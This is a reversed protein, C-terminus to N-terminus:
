CDADSTEQQRSTMLSKLSKMMQTWESECAIDLAGLSQLEGWKRRSGAGTEASLALTSGVQV